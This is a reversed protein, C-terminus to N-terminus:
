RRRSGRVVPEIAAVYDWTQRPLPQGTTVFDEYRTPGANYAILFGPSGYRDYLERLYATGAIINDHPDFPDRGLRYRTRLSAWTAPMLQMLGMAGVSSVAGVDGRSERRIVAHIWSPPIGFRQSAESVYDPSSYRPRPFDPYGYPSYFRPPSAEGQDYRYAWYGDAQERERRECYEYDVKVLSESAGSALNQAAAPPSPVTISVAIPALLLIAPIRTFM